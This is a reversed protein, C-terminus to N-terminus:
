TGDPDDRRFLAHFIAQDLDIGTSGEQVQGCEAISLRASDLLNPHLNSTSRAAIQGGTIALGPGLAIRLDFVFCDGQWRNEAPPITELYKLIGGQLQYVEPFGAALLYASAKECRIGGTCFMAIKKHRV